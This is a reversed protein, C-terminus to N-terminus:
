PADGDTKNKAGAHSFWAASDCQLVFRCKGTHKRQRFIMLREDLRTLAFREYGSILGGDFCPHRGKICQQAQSALTWAV